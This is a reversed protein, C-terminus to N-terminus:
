KSASPWLSGHITRTSERPMNRLYEDGRPISSSSMTQTVSVLISVGDRQTVPHHLSTFTTQKQQPHSALLIRTVSVTLTRTFTLSHTFSYTLTHSKHQSHSHTLTHTASHIFDSLLERTDARLTLQISHSTVRVSVSSM